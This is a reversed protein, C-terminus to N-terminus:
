RKSIKTKVGALRLVCACVQKSDDWQMEHTLLEDEVNTVFKNDIVLPQRPTAYKAALRLLLADMHDLKLLKIARELVPYAIGKKSGFTSFYASSVGIKKALDAQRMNRASCFSKLHKNFKSM